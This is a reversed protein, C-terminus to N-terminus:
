ASESFQRPMKQEDQKELVVALGLKEKVKVIMIGALAGIVMLLVPHIPTFLMLGVTGLVIALTSKDLLATRGIKYGAYAILAVISARIAEFAAQILPHDQVQLFFASLTLVILFSPLSVGLMAAVAGKVGALRCGIFAASNIAISGPVSGSVAFVQAVDQHSVWKRNIIVEREILPIIAYGGGFAVPGIKLFTLFIDALLKWHKQKEKRETQIM